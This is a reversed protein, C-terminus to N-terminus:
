AIDHLRRLPRREFLAPGMILTDAEDLFAVAHHQPWADQEASGRRIAVDFGGRLEDHLTTATTVAVDIEPRETHFRDLRPILWRMAFTTPASVRLIRRADLRGCAEAATLVRDSSLSVEAAFARAAPTATMRRGTRVFLRQGLWREIAAIQRSVAGHTLGLEAGAAAYNGTRAAVEFVRWATLPLPRRMRVTLFISSVRSLLRDLRCFSVPM